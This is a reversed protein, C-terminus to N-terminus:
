QYFLPELESVSVALHDDDKRRLAEVVLEPIRDVVLELCGMIEDPEFVIEGNELGPFGAPVDLGRVRWKADVVTGLDALDRRFQVACTRVLALLKAAPLKMKFRTLIGVLKDYAVQAFRLEAQVSGCMEAGAEGVPRVVVAGGNEAVIEYRATETLLLGCQVVVVQM